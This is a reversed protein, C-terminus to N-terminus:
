EQDASPDPELDEGREHQLRKVRFLVDELFRRNSAILDAVLGIVLLSAVLMSRAAQWWKRTGGMDSRGRIVAVIRGVVGVQSSALARM